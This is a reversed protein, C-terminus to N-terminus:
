KRQKITRARLRKDTGPGGLFGLVIPITGFLASLLGITENSLEGVQFVILGIMVFVALTLPVRILTWGGDPVDNEWRAFTRQSEAADSRAFREFTTNRFRPYTEWEVFGRAILRDLARNNEGSVLNGEALHHLVLREGKDLSNWAARCEPWAAIAADSEPPTDEAYRNQIYRDRFVVFVQQWRLQEPEDPEIDKESLKRQAALKEDDNDSDDVNDLGPYHDWHEILNEIPLTSVLHIREQRFWVIRELADLLKLRTERKLFLKEFGTIVFHKTSNSSIIRDRCDDLTDLDSLRFITRRKNANVAEFTDLVLNLDSVTTCEIISSLSVHRRSSEVSLDAPAGDLNIRAFPWPELRLDRRRHDGAMRLTQPKHAFLSFPFQTLWRVGRLWLWLATAVVAFGFLARILSHWPESLFGFPTLLKADPWTFTWGTWAIMGNFHRFTMAPGARVVPQEAVPFLDPEAPVACITLGVVQEDVVHIRDRLLQRHDSTDGTLFPVLDMLVASFFPLALTDIEGPRNCRWGPSPSAPDQFSFEPLLPNRGRDWVPQLDDPFPGAILPATPRDPVPRPLVSHDWLSAFRWGGGAGIDAHQWAIAGERGCLRRLDERVVAGMGQFTTDKFRAPIMSWADDTFAACRREMGHVAEDAALLQIRLLQFSKADEFYVLAPLASLLSVVAMRVPLVRRQKYRMFDRSRYANIQILPIAVVALILFAALVVLSWLHAMHLGQSFAAFFGILIVCVFAVPAIVRAMLRTAAKLDRESQPRGALRCGLLVVRSIGGAAQAITYSIPRMRVRTLPDASAEAYPLHFLTWIFGVACGQVMIVAILQPLGSTGAAIAYALIAAAIPTGWVISRKLPRIREPFLPYWAENLSRAGKTLRPALFWTATVLGLINILTTFFATLFIESQWYGALERDYFVVVSLPLRGDPVVPEVAFSRKIGRYRAEIGDRPLGSLVADKLRTNDGTQRFFDEVLSRRDDSHYLVELRDTDLIAFGYGPPLIPHWLSSMRKIAVAIRGEPGARESRGIDLSVATLKRGFDRSRIRELYITEGDFRWGRDQAPQRYYDRDKLPLRPLEIPHHTIATRVINGDENLLFSQSHPPYLGRLWFAPNVLDM